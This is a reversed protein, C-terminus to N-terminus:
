LIAVAKCSEGGDINLFSLQWVTSEPSSMAQKLKWFQQFIRIAGLTAFLYIISAPPVNASFLFM